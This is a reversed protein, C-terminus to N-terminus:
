RRGAPAAAGPEPSGARKLPLILRVVTTQEILPPRSAGGLSLTVAPDDFDAVLMPRDLALQGSLDLYHLPNSMLSTARTGASDRFMLLRVLASRSAGGQQGAGAGTGPDAGLAPRLSELYGALTRDGKLEVQVSSRPPITGLIYVVKGFALVADRLPKRLRNTVTGALRDTGVLELDADVAPTQATGFWRGTFSRTSWIPVRVRQLTEPRDPADNLGMPAYEYASSSLGLGGPNSMGGFIPEPVGFWSMVIDHEMKPADAPSLTMMGPNRNLSEPVIAVNYDRNQPSFATFFTSGRMLGKEQDIDIADVKNVKLDTGKFAYAAFYAALSVTLVIVPFTIWTLEMRKLVKKLFLYDGPGILLIYLFIFFAVWGFPVLRVGPFQELSRNLRTSLDTEGPQFLAGGGGPGAGASAAEDSQKRLDLAKAWFLARDEWAAFPKQSVDLGILTVRGFGYPGRALLPTTSSDLPKGGRAEIGELRAVTVRPSGARSIPRTSGAFSELTGLDDIQTLGALTAPLMDALISDRVEQWNTGVAVVLHGGNRVWTKLAEGKFVDLASMVVPDGTDLVLAELADYGYWRAPLSDPVAIATVKALSVNGQNNAGKFGPLNPVDNVGSPNGLTGILMQEPGLSQLDRQRTVLSTDLSERQQGISATTFEGKTRGRQDLLRITLETYLTGPRTYTSFWETAGAGLSVARRFITPTSHDDPVVVEMFGSFPEPGAKLQVRLPTWTGVKYLNENSSLGMRLGEVAVPPAAGWAPGCLGFAVLALVWFIRRNARRM